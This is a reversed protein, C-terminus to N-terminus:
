YVNQIFEIPHTRYIVHEHRIAGLRLGGRFNRRLIEIAEDTNFSFDYMDYVSILKGNLIEDLDAFAVVGITGDLIMKFSSNQYYVIAHSGFHGYNIGIIKVNVDPYYELIIQSVFLSYGACHLYESSVIEDLTVPSRSGYPALGSAVITVFVSFLEPEELKRIVLFKALEEKCNNFATKIYALDKKIAPIQKTISEFQKKPGWNLEFEEFNAIKSTFNKLNLFKNKLIKVENYNASTEKRLNMIDNKVVNLDEIIFTTKSQIKPLEEIKPLTSNKLNEIINASQVIDSKLNSIDQRCLETNVQLGTIENKSNESDTTLKVNKESFTTIQNKLFEISEQHLKISGLNEELGKRNLQMENKLNEIAAFGIESSGLMKSLENKNVILENKVIGIEQYNSGIDTQVKVLNDQLISIDSRLTQIETQLSLVENRIKNLSTVIIELIESM